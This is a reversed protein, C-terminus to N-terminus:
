KKDKEPSDFILMYIHVGSAQELYMADLLFQSDPVGNLLAQNAYFILESWHLDKIAPSMYECDDGCVLVTKGAQLVENKKFDPALIDDKKDGDKFICFALITEYGDQKLIKDVQKQLKGFTTKKTLYKDNKLCHFENNELDKDSM